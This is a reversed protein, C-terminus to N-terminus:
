PRAPCNDPPEPVCDFDADLAVVNNVTISVVETDAAVGDSAIFRVNYSGAQCLNPDWNFTSSLIGPPFSAGPPITEAFLSNSGSASVGFGLHDGENVIKAGITTLVPVAM